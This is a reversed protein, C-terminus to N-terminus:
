TTAKNSVVTEKTLINLNAFEKDHFLAARDYAIAADIENQFIGLNYRKNDRRIASEYKGNKRLSVGLYKSKGYPTRNRV